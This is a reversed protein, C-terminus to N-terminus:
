ARGGAAATFIEALAAFFLPATATMWVQHLPIAIWAPWPRPLPQGNARARARLHGDWVVEAAVALGHVVFFLLMAGTHRPLRGLCAWVFYEHMLGSVFFVGLTARVPHRRGGLRPFLHRLAVDHVYLNWRGSWFDRPSRALPPARFVEAFGIGANMLLGTVVDALAGLAAYLLWLAWLTASLGHDHLTPWREHAHLLLLVLAFKPLSRRLRRLGELRHRRAEQADAPWRSSPPVIWWVLFRIPTALMRRDRVTGHVLELAKAAFVISLGVAIMRSYLGPMTWAFAWAAIVVPWVRTTRGALLGFYAYAYALSFFFLSCVINSMRIWRHWSVLLPAAVSTGRGVGRPM